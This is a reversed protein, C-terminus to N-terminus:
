STGAALVAYVIIVGGAILIGLKGLENTVRRDASTPTLCHACLRAGDPFPMKCVTCVQRDPRPTGPVPPAPPTAPRISM